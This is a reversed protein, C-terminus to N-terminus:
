GGRFRLPIQYQGPSVAGAPVTWARRAQDVLCDNVARAAERSGVWNSGGIRASTIGSADLRVVMTLAGHLSPDRKLGHETYCFQNSGSERRVVELLAEPARAIEPAAEGTSTQRTVPSDVAVPPIDAVIGSLDGTDLSVPPLPLTDQGLDDRDGPCAALLLFVPVLLCSRHM